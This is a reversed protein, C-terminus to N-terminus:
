LMGSLDIIGRARGRITRFRTAATSSMTQGTIHTAEDSALFVALHYPPLVSDFQCAIVRQFGPIETHLDDSHRHNLGKKREGHSQVGVGPM